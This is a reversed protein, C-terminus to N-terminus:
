KEKNNYLCLIIGENIKSLAHTVDRDAPKKAAESAILQEILTKSSELCLRYQIGRSTCEHLGEHLTEIEEVLKLPKTSEAKKEMLRKYDPDNQLSM